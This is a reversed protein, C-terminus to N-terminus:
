GDTIRFVGIDDAYRGQDPASQNLSAEVGVWGRFTGDDDIIQIMPKVHSNGTYCHEGRADALATRWHWLTDRRHSTSTNASTVYYDTDSPSRGALCRGSGCVSWDRMWFPSGAGADIHPQDNEGSVKWLFYDHDFSAHDAAAVTAASARANWAANSGHGFGHTAGFGSRVFALTALSGDSAETVNWEEWGQGGAWTIRLLGADLTYTGTLSQPAASSQYGYATRVTCSRTPCGAAQVGTSSRVERRRQTWHWHDESVTGDAAFEYQGLRVWNTTSGANLGGVAVAFRAKGGPLEAASAAPAAPAGFLCSVLLTLVAVALHAPRFRHSDRPM